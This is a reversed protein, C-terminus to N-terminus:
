RRPLFLKDLLQHRLNIEPNVSSFDIEGAPLKCDLNYQSALVPGGRFESGMANHSEGNWTVQAGCGYSAVDSDVRAVWAGGFPSGRESAQNIRRWVHDSRPGWNTYVAPLFRFAGGALQRAAQQLGDNWGLWYDVTFSAGNEVNLMMMYERSQQSLASAGMTQIYDKGNLWGDRRGQSVTGGSRNQAFIPLLHVGYQALVSNELAPQYSIRKRSDVYSNDHNFYRGWFVPKRGSLYLIADDMFQPTLYSYSSDCGFNLSTQAIPVMPSADGLPISQPLAAPAAARQPPRYGCAGLVISTAAAFGGLLARRNLAPRALVFPRGEAPAAPSKKDTTDGVHPSRLDVM